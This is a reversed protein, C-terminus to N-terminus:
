RGRLEQEEVGAPLLRLLAAAGEQVEQQRPQRVPLLRGNRAGGAGGVGGGEQSPSAPADSGKDIHQEPWFPQMSNCM